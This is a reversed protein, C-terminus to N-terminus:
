SRAASRPTADLLRDAVDLAKDVAGLGEELEARTICLPPAIAMLNPRLFTIVGHELLAKKVDTMGAAENAGGGPPILHARSKRDRVLEIAWFLGLGRVDGVSPHREALRPLADALYRGQEAANEVLREEKYVEITAAAAACGLAHGSYTLGAMFPREEFMEVIERSLGVAGLPVSGSTLGKAMTMIDPKVGYNDVGFWKGTRGFGSMVEDTILLIGRRTCLERLRGLYDPPPVYLNNSPGTITEIMIGAIMDPGEHDIMEEIHSVCERGCSSPEKGFTCRYCYPPFAHLIGPVSPENYAQRYDGGLSMAGATAGHYSRYRTIVKPRGTVWRAIKLAYENSEAGSLTFFVKTLNDPLVGVLREAALGRAATAYAPAVYCLQDAQRKIAEVVKPHQHGVNVNVLQASFDLYRRGDGDYVYCGRAGSVTMPRVISQRTWPFLVYQRHQSVITEPKPETQDAM